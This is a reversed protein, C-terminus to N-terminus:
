SEWPFCRAHKGDGSEAKSLKWADSTRAGQVSSRRPACCKGLRSGPWVPSM